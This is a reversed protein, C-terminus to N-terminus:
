MFFRYERKWQQGQPLEALIHGVRQAFALTIPYSCCFDATNWNLKTLALVERLMVDWESDGHHELIELPRPVRPGPYTRLFPIYGSTYLAFESDSFKIYTGRVAPYGGPRYFQIARSGFAVFDKQPIDHSGDEFGALEDEWFQSSKHVVIRSPLSRRNQSKYLEIVDRMLSAASKATLHPSAEGPKKVWEFSDGRLVYGDGSSTFAQAMATRLRPNDELVERYFSIGVFCVSPDVDAIRWPIGGAKHYLATVFNWARTAVDQVRREGPVARSAHIELTRPWVLQTPIGHQMSEAKLGRRLNQHGREEDEVELVASLDDFLLRQGGVKKADFQQRIRAVEKSVKRPRMAGFRDTREIAGEIIEKPICCLIVHPKPERAALVGIADLYLNVVRQLMMSYDSESLAAIMDGHRIPERWADSTVLECRFASDPNCGPFHPLWFPESGDNALIGRCADIWQEADSIMAPPGVIGIAISRLLPTRQGELSYPGYLTLGTKPDVHTHQGGLLIAPERLVGSRFAPAVLHHDSTRHTTRRQRTM